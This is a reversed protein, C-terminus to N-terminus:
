NRFVPTKEGAPIAVSLRNQAPALPCPAYDTYACQLNAARNFDLVVPGRGQPLTAFLSRSARYTTVGSTADTFPAFANGQTGRSAPAALFLLRNGIGDVEFVVEGVAEHSHAIGEIAAEIATDRPRDFPIFEGEIVWATDPHYAPTEVYSGRLGHRPDIPRLLDVGGRKSLEIIVDDFKAARRFEREAVPGFAYRGRIEVDGVTLRENEALEVIPGEVGATWRGPVGDFYQPEAGLRHIASYSLYGYPDRRRAENQERWAHWQAEFAHRDFVTRPTNTLTM